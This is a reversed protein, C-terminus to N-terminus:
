PKIQLVEEKDEKWLGHEVYMSWMNSKEQIM